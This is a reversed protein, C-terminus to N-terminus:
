TRSRAWARRAPAARMRRARATPRPRRRPSRAAPARAPRGRGIERGHDVRADLRLELALRDLVEADVELVAVAVPGVGLLVAVRCGRRVLDRAPMFSPVSEGKMPMRMLGSEGSSASRASRVSSRNTVVSTGRPRRGAPRAEHDRQGLDRHRLLDVASRERARPARAACRGRARRAAARASPRSSAPSGRVPPAHGRQGPEDRGGLAAARARVEAGVVVGRGAVDGGRVLRHGVRGAVEGLVHHLHREGPM